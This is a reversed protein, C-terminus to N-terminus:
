LGVWNIGSFIPIGTSPDLIGAPFGFITPASGPALPAWNLPMSLCSGGGFGCGLGEVINNVSAIMSDVDASSMGLVDVSDSDEDYVM